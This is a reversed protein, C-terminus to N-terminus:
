EDQNNNAASGMLKEALAAFDEPEEEIMQEYTENDWVEIKNSYAFLILDRNINAHKQLQKPILLRDSSDLTLPTAGRFFYRKFQRKEKDYDNLKEIEAAIKEWENKPYLVLCREFGRNIVFQGEAEEPVQKKLGAPLIFRSKSDLKCEHEGLFGAM